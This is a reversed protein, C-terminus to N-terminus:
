PQLPKIKKTGVNAKYATLSERILMAGVQGPSAHIGQAQCAAAFQELEAWEEKTLPIKKRETEAKRRPRGGSSVVENSLAEFLHIHQDPPLGRPIRGIAVGGLKAALEEPTVPREKTSKDVFRPARGSTLKIPKKVRAGPRIEFGDVFDMRVSKPGFTFRRSLETRREM